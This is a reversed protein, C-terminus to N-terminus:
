KIIFDWFILSFNPISFIVLVLMYFTCVSILKFLVYQRIAKQATRQEDLRAKISNTMYFGGQLWLPEEKQKYSFYLM